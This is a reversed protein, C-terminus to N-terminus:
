DPIEESKFVGEKELTHLVDLVTVIDMNLDKAIEDETAKGHEALYSTIRERDEEKM